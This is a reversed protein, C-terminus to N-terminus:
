VSDEPMSRVSRAVRALGRRGLFLALSAILEVSAALLDESKVNWLYEMRSDSQWSDHRSL